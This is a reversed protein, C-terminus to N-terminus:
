RNKLWNYIRYAALGLILVLSIFIVFSWIDAITHEAASTRFYFLTGASIAILILYFLGVIKWPKM